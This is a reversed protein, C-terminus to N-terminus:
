QSADSRLLLDLSSQGPSSCAAEPRLAYGDFGDEATFRSLVLLLGQLHLLSQLHLRTHPKSGRVAGQAAAHLRAPQPSRAVTYRATGIQSMSWRETGIAAETMIGAVSVLAPLGHRHFASCQCPKGTEM